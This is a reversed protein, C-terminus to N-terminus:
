GKKRGLASRIRELDEKYICLCNEIQEARLGRFEIPMDEIRTRSNKIKIKLAKAGKRAGAHLYIEKPLLDTYNGIRLATDYVALEGIGCIKKITKKILNFIEDFNKCTLLDVEVKLLADKAEGLVTVSIRWQHPHRIYKSDLALTASIIADRLSSSNKIFEARESMEKDGYQKYDSVIEEYTKFESRNASPSKGCGTRVETNRGCNM